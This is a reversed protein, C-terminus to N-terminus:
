NLTLLHYMFIHIIEECIQLKMWLRLYILLVESSQQINVKLFIIFFASGIGIRISDSPLKFSYDGSAGKKSKKKYPPYPHPLPTTLRNTLPPVRIRNASNRRDELSVCSPEDWLVNEVHTFRRTKRNTSGGRQAASHTTYVCEQM